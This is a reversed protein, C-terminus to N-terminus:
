SLSKRPTFNNTKFFLSFSFSLNLDWDNVEYPDAKWSVPVYDFAGSVGTFGGEVFGREMAFESVTQSKRARM